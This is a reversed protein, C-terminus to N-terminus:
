TIHIQINQFLLPQATTLFQSKQLGIHIKLVEAIIEEVSINGKNIGRCFSDIYIYYEEEMFEYYALTRDEIHRPKRYILFPWQKCALPKDDGLTCLRGKQFICSNGIKTLVLKRGKKEVCGKGYKASYYHAELRTLIPRYVRCCDGCALCKWTHVTRWPLLM